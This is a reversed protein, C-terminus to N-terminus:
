ASELKSINSDGSILAHQPDDEAGWRDVVMPLLEAYLPRGLWRRGSHIALGGNTAPLEATLTPWNCVGVVTPLATSRQSPM